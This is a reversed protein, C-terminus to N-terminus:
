WAAAHSLVRFIAGKVGCLILTPANIRALDDFAYGPWRTTRDLALELYTRWYRGRAGRAPRAEDARVHRADTGIALLVARGRTGVHILEFAHTVQIQVV